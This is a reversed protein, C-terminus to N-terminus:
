WHGRQMILLVLAAAVITGIRHPCVTVRRLARWTSKLLANAREASARSANLLLNRAQNDPVLSAGKTPVHIGIGAGTYGKDALTPMGAAGAPYPAGLVGHTRAATIDHISGPQV